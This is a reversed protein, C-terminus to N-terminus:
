HMKQKVLPPNISIMKRACAVNTLEKGEKVCAEHMKDYNNIIEILDNEDWDDRVVGLGNAAIFSATSPKTNTVVPTGSTIAEAITVMNLDSSTDVLLALSRRLPSALQEHPMFGHFVVKDGIGLTAVLRELEQRQDGDGIIDLRYHRYSDNGVIKAFKTIIRDVRKREVLQSVVIFANDHEDTPYLTHADTGHDVIVDSVHDSYHGIFQKAPESRPVITVHRMFLPLVINHWFRSPLQHMLRQHRDMEQWIILRSPCVRSAILSPIQFAESTIVLDYSGAHQKLWKHMGRPWPLLSPKFLQPLRSPFYIVEFPLDRDEGTPKFEESALLTVQHGLEIFGRAFNSIMCDRISEKRKIIGHEATSLICNIILIKMSTATM